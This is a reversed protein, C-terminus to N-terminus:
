LMMFLLTIGGAIYGVFFVFALTLDLLGVAVLVLLFGLVELTRITVYEYLCLNRVARGVLVDGSAM